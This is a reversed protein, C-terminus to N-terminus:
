RRAAAYIREVLAVSQRGEVGDCGPRENREIARIFDELVARHASADLVVPTTSRDDRQGRPVAPDPTLDARPPNLDITALRDDLDQGASFARGAGTIVVARIAQDRAANAVAANLAETLAEDFANLVDGRDLTLIATAGDREVRLPSRSTM